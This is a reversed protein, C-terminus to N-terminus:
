VDVDVGFKEFGEKQKRRAVEELEEASYSDTIGQFNNFKNSNPGKYDRYDGNCLKVLFSNNAKNLNHNECVWKSKSLEEILKEVDINSNIKTLFNSQVPIKLLSNLRSILKNNIDGEISKKVKSEKVKSQTSKSVIVGTEAVTIPTEAVIVGTETVNVLLYENILNERKRRKTIEFFRKQIGKSTIIKFKEFLESSFLDVQLCKKLVEKVYVEKAGVADAVLFCVDEDWKMFYGEDGYINGLLLIIIAISNPGCSKMIKKIKLDNLFDVDLPYYEIGRSLPRAM